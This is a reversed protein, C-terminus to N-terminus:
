EEFLFIEEDARKMLFQERAFKELSSMDSELQHMKEQSDISLEKYYAIEREIRNQTISLQYYDVLTHSDFLLFWLVAVICTLLYKNTVVKKVVAVIKDKNIEM